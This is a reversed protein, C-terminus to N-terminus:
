LKGERRQQLLDDIQEKYAEKVDLLDLKLEQNEELKEGYLQLIADHQQQLQTYEKITQDHNTLTEKITDLESILNGVETTLYNKDGQLRQLEWQLQNIEGDRQKLTSQLGELVSTATLNQHPQNFGGYSSGVRGSNSVCDLDDQPSFIHFISFFM